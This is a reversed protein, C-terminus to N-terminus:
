FCNEFNYYPIATLIGNLYIQSEYETEQLKPDTSVLLSYYEHNEIQYDPLEEKKIMKINAGSYDVLLDTKKLFEIPVFSKTTKSFLRIFGHFLIHKMQIIMIDLM